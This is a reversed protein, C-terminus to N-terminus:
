QTNRFETHVIRSAWSSTCSVKNQVLPSPVAAECTNRPITNSTHIACSFASLWWWTRDITTHFCWGLIQLCLQREFHKKEPTNHTKTPPPIVKVGWVFQLSSSVIGLKSKQQKTKFGTAWFVVRFTLFGGFLCRKPHNFHLSNTPPLKM